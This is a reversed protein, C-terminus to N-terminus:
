GSAAAQLGGGGGEGRGKVGGAEGGELPPNKLKELEKIRNMEFEVYDRNVFLMGKGSWKGSGLNDLSEAPLFSSLSITGSAIAWTTTTEAKQITATSTQTISVKSQVRSLATVSESVTVVPEAEEDEGKKEGGMEDEPLPMETVHEVDRIAYLTCELNKFKCGDRFEANAPFVLDLTTNVAEIKEETAPEAKGKGKAKAKGKKHSGSSAASGPVSEVMGGWLCSTFPVKISDATTGDDSVSSGAMKIQLFCTSSTTTPLSALSATSKDGKGLKKKSATKGKGGGKGTNPRSGEEGGEDFVPVNTVNNIVAKVFVKDLANPDSSQLTDLDAASEEVGKDDLLTLEPLAAVVRVRYLPLLACPNGTLSLHKLGPIKGVALLLSDLDSIENYSLDLSVLSGLNECSNPDIRTLKNFGLGLQMLSPSPPINFESIDNNYAALSVLGSTLNEIRRLNNSSIDLSRLNELMKAEKDIYNIKMGTVKLNQFIGFLEPKNIRKYKMLADMEECWDPVKKSGLKEESFKDIANSDVVAANVGEDDDDSSWPDDEIMVSANMTELRRGAVPLKRSPREKSTGNNVLMEGTETFTYTHFKPPSPKATITLGAAKSALTCIAASLTTM